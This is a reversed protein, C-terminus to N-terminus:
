KYYEITSILYEPLELEIQAPLWDPLSDWHLFDANWSYEKGFKNTAVIRRIKKMNRTM